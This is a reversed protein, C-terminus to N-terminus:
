NPLEIQLWNQSVCFRVYCFLSIGDSHELSYFGEFGFLSLFLCPWVSLCVCVSVSSSVYLSHIIWLSLSLCLCLSLWFLSLSFSVSDFSLSFIFNYFVIVLSLFIILHSRHFHYVTFELQSMFCLSWHFDGCGKNITTTTQVVVCLSDLFQSGLFDIFRCLWRPLSHSWINSYFTVWNKGFTVWFIALATKIFSHFKQFLGFLQWDNPSRKSSLNNGILKLFQGIQDCELQLYFSCFTLLSSQM